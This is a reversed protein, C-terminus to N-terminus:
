VWKKRPNLAMKVIICLETNAKEANGDKLEIVSDKKLLIYRDLQTDEHQLIDM